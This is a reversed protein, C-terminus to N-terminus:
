SFKKIKNQLKYMRLKLKTFTFCSVNKSELSKAKKTYLIGKFISM